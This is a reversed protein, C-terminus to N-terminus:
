KKIAAEHKGEKFFSIIAEIVYWKNLPEGGKKLVDELTEARHAELFKKAEAGLIPFIVTNVRIPEHWSKPTYNRVYEYIKLGLLEYQKADIM